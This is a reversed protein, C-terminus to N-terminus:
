GKKFTNKYYYFMYQQIIGAFGDYDGENFKNGYVNEIMRNIWVDRPFADKHKFAFLAICNAVKPGIGKVKKLENTCEAFNLSKIQSLDIINDNIKEVADAIYEDRYGLKLPALDKAELGKLDESSPFAMYKVGYESTKETGFLSVFEEVSKKISPIQKQQSIIFSILTEFPEQNLIRIGEGYEYAKLLFKDDGRNMIDIAPTYDFDVDFYDRWISIWDQPSCTINIHNKDLQEMEIYKGYAINSFKCRHVDEIKNMRFCQGSNAIKELNFNDIKVIM